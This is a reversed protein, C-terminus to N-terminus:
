TGDWCCANSTPCYPPGGPMAVEDWDCVETEDWDGCSNYWLVCGYGIAAVYCGREGYDRPTCAPADCYDSDGGAVDVCNGVGCDELWDNDSSDVHCNDSVDCSQHNTWKYLSDGNCYSWATVDVSPCNTSNCNPADNCGHTLNVCGYDCFVGNATHGDDASTNVCSYNSCTQPEFWDYVYNNWCANSDTLVEPCSGCSNGCGDDGCDKGDCTCSLECSDGDWVYGSSCEYRCYDNSASTNYTSVNSPSYVAGTWYQTISSVNNWDTNSLKASCNVTRITTCSNSICDRTGGGTYCECGDGVTGVLSDGDCNQYGSSCQCTGSNCTTNNDCSGCSLWSCNDWLSGCQYGASACTKTPTCCSGASLGSPKNNNFATWESQKRSPIFYDNTTHTNIVKHCDGSNVTGLTNGVYVDDVGGNHNIRYGDDWNNIAAYVSVGFILLFLNSFIIIKNKKSIKKNLLKKLFTM